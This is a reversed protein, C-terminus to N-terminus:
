PFLLFNQMEEDFSAFIALFMWCTNAGAEFYYASERFCPCVPLRNGEAYIGTM